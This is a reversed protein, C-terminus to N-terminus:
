TRSGHKDAKAGGPYVVCTNKQLTLMTDCFGQMRMAKKLTEGVPAWIKEFFLAFGFVRKM